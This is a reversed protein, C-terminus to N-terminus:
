SSGATGPTERVTVIQVAIGGARLREALSLLPAAQMDPPALLSLMTDARGTAEITRRAADIAGDAAVAQGDLFLTGDAQMLLLPRPLHELPLNRTGSYRIAGRRPETISGTTLFFLLLLFVINIM